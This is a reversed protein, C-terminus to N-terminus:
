KFIADVIAQGITKATDPSAIIVLCVGALALFIGFQMFKKQIIYKISLGAVIVLAVTSIISMAQTKANNTWSSPDGGVAYAYKTGVAMVVMFLMAAKIYNTSKMTQVAKSKVTHVTRRLNIKM